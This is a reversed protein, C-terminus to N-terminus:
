STTWLLGLGSDRSMSNLQFLLKELEKGKKAGCKKMMEKLVEVGGESMGNSELNYASSTEHQIGLGQCWDSFSKRFQPGFNSRM